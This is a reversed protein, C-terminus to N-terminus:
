GWLGAVGEDTCLLLAAQRLAMMSPYWLFSLSGLSDVEKDSVEREDEVLSEFDGCGCTEETGVGVGVTAGGGGGGEETMAAVPLFSFNVGTLPTIGPVESVELLAAFVFVDVGEDEGMDLPLFWMIFLDEGTCCDGDGRLLFKSGERNFDFGLTVMLLFDARFLFAATLRSHM